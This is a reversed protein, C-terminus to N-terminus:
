KKKGGPFGGLGPLGPFRPAGGLGPLTPKGALKSFDDPLGSAVDKPAQAPLAAPDMGMERAMRELQVPDIDPMGPPMQGPPMRGGFMGALSGMGGKSVKKMMDAMQRHQKMLKNVDSVEVGAGAAIRKRRSANLLEPRAREKRTMSNIIAVQRDFVKDDLNAGAMAKKMQGMGPLLGMLSNMGGMKKMQLLQSKLDELDFQGKKLKRAMKAADEASVTEAAKEVLSVIDGMGLIRDAVRGPHFDELADMKEGVGLLKIPVATAARMSLAAGGRGDGDVRTLVIGTLAVRENFSRALNVADQGTLADAVLLVEHPDSVAKIEATEAMLEEDIHTRGATDLMLVDYGGLRGERAARRAIEVPDEGAVIPLTDVGVQEGLVRLQEMAAPRRTDLSAMLVRKNQRAKIRRAIKATTTTKGSGQLGVMLITVPPAANLDIPAATDGLVRVLEDHVIKVVQQGPTVSRTVEAGIAREGVQQVFARVVELSVDAELLARRVERLAADVDKESLAGRGTLGKFINGLRDSLSEFM